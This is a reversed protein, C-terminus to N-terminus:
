LFLRHLKLYESSISTKNAVASISLEDFKDVTYTASVVIYCQFFEWEWRWFGTVITAEFIDRIIVVFNLRRSLQKRQNEMKAPSLVELGFALSRSVIKFHFNQEM